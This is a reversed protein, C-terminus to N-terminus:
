GRKLLYSPHYLGTPEYYEDYAYQFGLKELLNKSIINEPHHGAFLSSARLYTFAYEIVARAAEGAYGNRWCSSKIQFGLEYIRETPQYPRLGCCGIFENTALLFIPWYQINHRRIITREILLRGSVQSNSFPGGIFKSVEADGWLDIALEMDDLSWTRFGIRKSKLFYSDSM